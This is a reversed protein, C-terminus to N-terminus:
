ELNVSLNKYYVIDAAIKTLNKFKIHSFFVKCVLILFDNPGTSSSAEANM